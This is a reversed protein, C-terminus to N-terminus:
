RFRGPTKAPDRGGSRVSGRWLLNVAGLVLAAGLLTGALSIPTIGQLLAEGGAMGGSLLAGALGVGINAALGHGYAGRTVIGVLWGLGAGIALLLLFSM